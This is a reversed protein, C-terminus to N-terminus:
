RWCCWTSAAIAATNGQLIRLELAKFHYQLSLQNNGTTYHLVAIFSYTDALQLEDHDQNQEQLYEAKEFHEFAEEYLGKRMQAEGILNLYSINNKDEVNNLLTIAEDEKGSALLKEITSFNQGYGPSLKLLFICVIFFTRLLLRM